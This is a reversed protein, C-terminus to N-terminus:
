PAAAADWAARDPHRTARSAEAGLAAAHAQEVRGPRAVGAAALELARRLGAPDGAEPPLRAPGAEACARAGPPWCRGCAARSPTGTGRAPRTRPPWPELSTATPM